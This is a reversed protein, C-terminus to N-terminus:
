ETLGPVVAHTPKRVTNDHTLIQPEGIFYTHFDAVILNYTKQAAATDVARSATTGRVCHLRDGSEVDRAKVWGKGAVWFPHGGSCLVAQGDAAIRILEGKPRVTTRLM